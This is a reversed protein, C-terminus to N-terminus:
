AADGAVAALGGVAAGLPESASEVDDAPAGGVGIV